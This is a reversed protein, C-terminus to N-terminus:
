RRLDGLPIVGDMPSQGKNARMVEYHATKWLAYEQPGIRIPLPSVKWFGRGLKPYYKWYVRPKTPRLIEELPSM